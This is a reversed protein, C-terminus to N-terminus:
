RIEPSPSVTGGQIRTTGYIRVVGAGGGGGGGGPLLTSEGRIGAGGNAVAAYSGNGGDGGNNAGGTGGAASSTGDPDAGRQGNNSASAGEGGGGGDAFIFGGSLISPAELILMGGSGGGGGGGSEGMSNACDGTCLAGGGGAGSVDIRGATRVEIERGAIVYVAGGGLGGFGMHMAAGGGDQGRCGARLGNLAVIPAPEGGVANNTATGGIGGVGTLTGGAGGGRNQTPASPFANCSVGMAAPGARGVHSGADLRDDVAASDAGILILPRAGTVDAAGVNIINAAVVCWAAISPECM